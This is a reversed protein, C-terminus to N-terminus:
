QLCRMTVDYKAARDVEFLRTLRLHAIPEFRNTAAENMYNKAIAKQQICANSTISDIELFQYRPKSLKLVMLAM